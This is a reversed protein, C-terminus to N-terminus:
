QSHMLRSVGTSHPLLDNAMKLDSVPLAGGVQDCVGLWNFLYLKGYNSCVILNGHFCNLSCLVFLVCCSNGTLVSCYAFNLMYVWLVMLYRDMIMYVVNVCWTGACEEQYKRRSQSSLPSVQCRVGAACSNLTWHACSVTHPPPVLHCLSAALTLSDTLLSVM